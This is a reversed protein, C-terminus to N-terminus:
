QQFYTSVNKHSNVELIKEMKKKTVISNKTFHGNEFAMWFKRM